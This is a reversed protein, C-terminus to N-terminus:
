GLLAPEEGLEAGIEVGSPPDEDEKAVGPVLAQHLPELVAARGTAAFTAQSHYFESILSGSASVFAGM